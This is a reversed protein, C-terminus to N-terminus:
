GSIEDALRELDERVIQSHHENYAIGQAFVRGRVLFTDYEGTDEPFSSGPAGPAHTFTEAPRRRCPRGGNAAPVDVDGSSPHWNAKEV